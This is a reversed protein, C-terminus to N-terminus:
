CLRLSFEALSFRCHCILFSLHSIAIAFSFHCILFPFNKTRRRGELDVVALRKLGYAIGLRYNGVEKLDSRRKGDMVCSRLGGPNEKKAELCDM